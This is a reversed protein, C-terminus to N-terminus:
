VLLTKTDNSSLYQFIPLLALCLGNTLLTACSWDVGQEKGTFPKLAKLKSEKCRYTNCITADKYFQCIFKRGRIGDGQKISQHLQM